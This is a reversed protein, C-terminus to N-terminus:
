IVTFTRVSVSVASKSLVASLSIHNEDQTWRNVSLKEGFQGKPRRTGDTCVTRLFSVQHFPDLTFLSRRIWVTLELRETWIDESLLLFDGRNLTGHTCLGLGASPLSVAAERASSGRYQGRVDRLQVLRGGTRPSCWTRFAPFVFHWCGEGSVCVFLFLIWFFKVLLHSLPPPLAGCLPRCFCDLNNPDLFQARQSSLGTTRVPQSYNQTSISPDTSGTFPSLFFESTSQRERRISPSWRAAFVLYCAAFLLM